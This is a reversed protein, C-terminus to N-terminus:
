SLFTPINKIGLGDEDEVSTRPRSENYVGILYGLTTGTAEVPPYAPNPSHLMFATGNHRLERISLEGSTARHMVIKGVKPIPHKRFLLLDGPNICPMLVDTGTQCCFCDSIDDFQTPVLRTETVGLPDGSSIIDPTSMVGIYPIRKQFTLSSAKKIAINENFGLSQLTELHKKPIPQHGSEWNAVTSRRVGMADAFEEQTRYQNERWAKLRRGPNEGQEVAMCLM